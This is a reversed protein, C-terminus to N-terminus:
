LSKFSPQHIILNHIQTYVATKVTQLDYMTTSIAISILMVNDDGGLSGGMM